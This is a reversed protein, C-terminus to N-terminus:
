SFKYYHVHKSVLKIKNNGCFRPDIEVYVYLTIVVVSKNNGIVHSRKRKLPRSKRASLM